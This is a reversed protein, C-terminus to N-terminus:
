EGVRGSPVYFELMGPLIEVRMPLRGVAEGDVDLEFGSALSLGESGDVGGSGSGSAGQSGPTVLVRRAAHFSVSPHAGHTGAFLSPLNALLRLVSLGRVVVVEFRGDTPNAEPAVEMGAGFFRGNAVVVLSTPGEHVLQGDVEVRLPVPRHGLISAVAGVAFGLRAGV